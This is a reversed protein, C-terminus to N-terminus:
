REDGSNSIRTSGASASTIHSIGGNSLGWVWLLLVLAVGAFGGTTEHQYPTIVGAHLSFHSLIMVGYFCGMAKAQWTRSSQVWLGAICDIVSYALLLTHQDPFLRHAIMGAITSMMVILWALLRQRRLFVPLPLMALFFFATM